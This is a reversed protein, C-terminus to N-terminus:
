VTLLHPNLGLTQGCLKEKAPKALRSTVARTPLLSTPVTLGCAQGRQRPSPLVLTPPPEYVSYLERKKNKTGAPAADAERRSRYAWLQDWAMEGSPSVRPSLQGSYEGAKICRWVSRGDCTYRQSTAVVRCHCYNFLWCDEM